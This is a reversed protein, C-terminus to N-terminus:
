TTAWTSGRFLHFFDLIPSMITFCNVSIRAVQLVEVAELYKSRASFMESKKFFDAAMDKAVQSKLLCEAAYNSKKEVKEVDKLVHKSIAAENLYLTPSKGDALSWNNLVVVYIGDIARISSVTGVGFSCQIFTGVDYYPKVDKNNLYFTPTQGGAMFWNTPIVVVDDTRLGQVKGVGYPTIVSQNLFMAAKLLSYQQSYIHYFSLLFWKSCIGIAM